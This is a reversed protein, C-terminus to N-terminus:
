EGGGGKFCTARSTEDQAPQSGRVHIVALLAIFLLVRAIILRQVLVCPPVLSQTVPFVISLGVHGPHSSGPGTM